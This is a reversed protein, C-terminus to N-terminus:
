KKKSKKSGTLSDLDIKGLVNLNPYDHSKNKAPKGIQSLDIKGLPTFTQKEFKTETRERARRELSKINQILSHYKSKDIIVKEKAGDLLSGCQVCYSYNAMNFYGCKSCRRKKGFRKRVAEYQEDTIKTNVNVGDKLDGLEGRKENLFDVLTQLGINLETLVKNIRVGMYIFKFQKCLYAIFVTVAFM